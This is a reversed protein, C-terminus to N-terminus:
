GSRRARAETLLRKRPMVSNGCKRVPALRPQNEVAYRLHQELAQVPQRRAVLIELVMVLQPSIRPQSHEAALARELTQFQATLLRAAVLLNVAVELAGPRRDRDFRGAASMGGTGSPTHSFRAPWIGSGLPAMASSSKRTPGADASGAGHMAVRLTLFTEWVTKCKRKRTLRLNPDHGPHNPKHCHPKGCRGRM